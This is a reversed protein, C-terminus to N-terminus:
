CVADLMHLEGQLPSAIAAAANVGAVDVTVRMWHESAVIVDVM